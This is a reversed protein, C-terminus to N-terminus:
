TTKPQPTLSARLRSVFAAPDNPLSAVGSQHAALKPYGPTMTPPKMLRYLKNGVSEGSHSDSGHGKADKM